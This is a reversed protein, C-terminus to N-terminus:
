ATAVIWRSDPTWALSGFSRDFGDTLARTQGSAVDKLHVVLRDSEYGAREMALYALWRGDPSPTPLTDTAQNSKTLNVPAGGDLASHYIDINTSLPEKRGSRRAAFYLSSGDPAWAIEEGGGFPKTPTDAVLADRAPPGDAAVGNKGVVGDILDYVFVRSFTGPTEWSDWHRYFGDDVDYLRGTGPGPLHATGDGECGFSACERSIDGFMAIKRADPSLHFGHVDTAFRTVQMPEGTLGNEDFAARWVQSSKDSGEAAESSARDSLFYVFGDSGFTLNSASGGFDLEIPLAEAAQLAVWYHATERTLTDRDTQTVSYVAHNGQPTVVPAGLRPMAVLDLAQMPTPSVETNATPANATPADARAQPTAVLLTFASVVVSATLRTKEIM